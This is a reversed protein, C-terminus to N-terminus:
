VKAMILESRQKAVFGNKGVGLQKVLLKIVPTSSSTLVFVNALLRYISIANMM